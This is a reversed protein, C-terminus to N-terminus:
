NQYCKLNRFATWILKKRSVKWMRLHSNNVLFRIHIGNVEGLEAYFVVLMNLDFLKICPINIKSLRCPNLRVAQPVLCKEIDIYDYLYGYDNDSM